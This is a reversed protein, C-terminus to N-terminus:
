SFIYTSNLVENIDLTNIMIDKAGQAHAPSVQNIWDDLPNGEFLEVFSERVATNLKHVDNAPVGFSDHILMFNDVGQTKCKEVTLYMLTADLSHVLNPAIGNGQQQKNIKNTPTRIALNGLVTKIRTQKDKTKWQVVPFNFHPTTWVLPADSGESYFDHIVEKIFTQGVSAGEVIDNISRANLEVLIKAVVWKDGKWFVQEDDEMENLLDRVQDFMGRKTVSYPVTMVNRKTLKRTVNGKLDRIEKRTNVTKFEGDRTTFTLKTPAQKTQLYYEVKNAVDTYVDAPPAISGENTRDVVNVAEAGEKDMLLGSYLQLGSCTADLSVPLSVPIGESHDLLAKCASLFMLPEDAENWYEVTDMPNKAYDYIDKINNDVWAVREEFSKKDIGWNNATHVKLWYLGNKSLTKADAFTLFSKVAGTSQPNLIQQIPYLRGRFDTNYTFYMFDRDAYETAINHALTFMIRKSRNAELKKLQIEKARYWNKYGEKTKHKGNDDLEGYDGKPIMDYVNLTDMYPLGGYFKPNSKPSTPDVMSNDILSNVVGLTYENIKWRTNQVHNIVDYIRSLKEAEINNDIYKCAKQNRIFTLNNSTYYGGNGWLSTWDMPPAILPKYNVSFLVNRDKVKGIIQQADETLVIVKETKRGKYQLRIEFLNCGSKMVCDILRAGINTKFVSERGADADNNTMKALKTKRSNIYGIGRSKYEYELYSFFKPENEKFQEVSLLDLIKSTLAGTLSTVKPLRTSVSNLLFQLSTFALIDERGSFNDKLFDRYMAGNGRTNSDFYLKFQEGVAEVAMKQLISGETTNAFLGAQLMDNISNNYKKTADELFREEMFVQELILDQMEESENLYDKDINYELM